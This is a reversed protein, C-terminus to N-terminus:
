ILQSVMALISFTFKVSPDIEAIPVVCSAIKSIAASLITLALAILTSKLLGPEPIELAVTVPNAVPDFTTNEFAKSVATITSPTSLAAKVAVEAAADMVPRDVAPVRVAAVIVEVDVAAVVIFVSLSAAAVRVDAASITISAAAAVVM